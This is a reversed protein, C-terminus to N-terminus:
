RVTTFFPPLADAISAFATAGGACSPRTMANTLLLLLFTLVCEMNAPGEGASRVTMGGQAGEPADFSAGSFPACMTNKGGGIVAVAVGKGELM